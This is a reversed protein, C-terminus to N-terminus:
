LATCIFAYIRIHENTSEPIEENFGCMFRCTCVCVYVTCVCAYMHTYLSLQIPLTITLSNREAMRSEEFVLQESSPWSSAAPPPETELDRPVTPAEVDTILTCANVHRYM